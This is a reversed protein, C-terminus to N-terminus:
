KLHSWTLGRRIQNIAGSTVRNNMFDAIDQDSMIDLLGRIKRVDDETLKSNVNNSGRQDDEM